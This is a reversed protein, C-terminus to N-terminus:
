LVDHIDALSGAHWTDRSSAHRREDHDFWITEPPCPLRSQMYRFSDRRHLYVDVVGHAQSSSWFAVNLSLGSAGPEFNFNKTRGFCKPSMVPCVWIPWSNYIALLYSIIERAALASVAFDLYRRTRVGATDARQKLRPWSTRKDRKKQADKRGSHRFLYCDLPLLEKYIYGNDKGRNWVSRVHDTFDAGKKFAPSGSHDAFPVSHGTIIMGSCEDFMIAEIYDDYPDFMACQWARDTIDSIMQAVSHVPTYTLEVYPCAWRLSIELMTPVGLSHGAGSSRQLLEGRDHGAFDSMEFQGNGLVFGAKKVTCDFTGYRASSSANTTTAFADAVSMTRSGVVVTPLLGVSQTAQVLAEMTVNAEVLATGSDSKILVIKDLGSFNGPRAHLKETVGDANKYRVDHAKVTACISLVRNSYNRWQSQSEVEQQDAPFPTQKAVMNPCLDPDDSSNRM